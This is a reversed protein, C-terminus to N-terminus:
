VGVGRVEFEVTLVVVSIFVLTCKCSPSKRDCRVKVLRCALCYSAVTLRETPTPREYPPPPAKMQRPYYESMDPIHDKSSSPPDSISTQDGDISLSELAQKLDALVETDLARRKKEENNSSDAERDNKEADEREAGEDSKRYYRGVSGTLRWMVDVLTLILYGCKWNKGTCKM